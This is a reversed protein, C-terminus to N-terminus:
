QLRPLLEESILQLYELKARRGIETAEAVQQYMPRDADEMYDCIYLGAEMPEGSLKKITVQASHRVCIPCPKLCNRFGMIYFAPQCNAMALRALSAYLSFIVVWWIRVYM